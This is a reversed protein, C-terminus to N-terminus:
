SIKFLKKLKGGNRAEMMGKYTFQEFNKQRSKKKFDKGFTVWLIGEIEKIDINTAGYVDGLIYILEEYSYFYHYHEEYGKIQRRIEEKYKVNLLKEHTPLLSFACLQICAYSKPKLIRLIEGFLNYAYPKPIHQITAVSYIFDLSENELPIKVGDYHLFSISSQDVRDRKLRAKAKEIMQDSVDLGIIQKPKFSQVAAEIIYALGSGIEMIELDNSLYKAPVCYRIADIYENSRAKLEVGSAGDHIRKETKELSDDANWTQFAKHMAM